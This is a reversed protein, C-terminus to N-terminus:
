QHVTQSRLKKLAEAMNGAEHPAALIGYFRGRPDIVLVSSSHDVSYSAPTPGPAKAYKVGLSDALTALQAPEGTVGLFAPNFATAYKRLLEPTDREPDVSVFAVRVEPPSGLARQMQSLTALTTPCLDPCHTFGFFLLTWRDKLAANDFPKGDYNALRFPPLTEPASLVYADRAIEVFPEAPTAATRPQAYWVAGVVAALVAVALVLAIRPSM